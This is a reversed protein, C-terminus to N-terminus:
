PGSPRAVLNWGRRPRVAAELGAPDLPGRGDLSYIGLGCEGALLDHLAAATAGYARAAGPEYEFIVHPRCRRLLGRAGRLVELEAGEVDVKLIDVRAGPPLVDDLRATRVTLLRVEAGAPVLATRRLGSLGLVPVVCHFPVEGARDSLALEHVEVGPFRARLRAALEPIPEFARHRGRPALELAARVFGGRHAGVDVVCSDPRLLEALLAHIRRNEREDRLRWRPEVLWRLARRVRWLPLVGALRAIM